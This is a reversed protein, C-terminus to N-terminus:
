PIPSGVNISRIDLWSHCTQKKMQKSNLYSTLPWYIIPIMHTHIYLIMLNLLRHYVWYLWILCSTVFMIPLCLLHKIATHEVRMWAFLLVTRSTELPNAKKRPISNWGFIGLLQSGSFCLPCIMSKGDQNCVKGCRKKQFIGGDVTPARHRPCARKSLALSKCCRSSCTGRSHISPTQFYPATGPHLQYVGVIGIYFPLLHHNILPTVISNESLVWIHIYTDYIIIYDYTNYLQYNLQLGMGRINFM